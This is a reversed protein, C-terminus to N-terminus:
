DVFLRGLLSSLRGSPRGSQVLAMCPDSAALRSDFGDISVTKSGSEKESASLAEFKLPIGSAAFSIRWGAHDPPLLANSMLDPNARLADPISKEWVTARLAVPEAAFCEMVSAAQGGKLKQLWAWVNAGVINMGNFDGHDNPTDFRQRDYWKQFGSGMWMGIEFHLHAREKPITYSASRGMVGIAEGGRVELGPKIRDPIYSLHAYLTVMGSMWQPHEVVIYRGYSSKSPDRSAYRVIGRDFAFIRDVSEGRGDRQISRLDIGEHFRSGNNRVCGWLASELRGSQTPQAFHSLGKGKLFADNPTPWYHAGIRSSASLVSLGAWAVALSVTLRIRFSM